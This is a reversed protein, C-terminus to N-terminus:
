EGKHTCTVIGYLKNEKTAREEAPMRTLYKKKEQYERNGYETGPLRENVETRVEIGEGIAYEIAEQMIQQVRNITAKHKEMDSSETVVYLADHLPLAIRIGEEICKTVAYRMCVGGSGQIPFNGTSLTNPNDGWMTWGDRLEIFGIRKYKSLNSKSWRWYVRFVKKHKDILRRAEKTVAALLLSKGREDGRDVLRQETESLGIQREIGDVTLLKQALKEHGMGFQLALVVVKYINRVGLYSKYEERKDDDEIQKYNKVYKVDIHPPIAGALQAFGAYPDGSQYAKMMNKDGSVKAAIAFEQSEWDLETIIDSSSCHLGRMWRPMVYPFVSGSPQNRGTKSGFVGFLIRLRNDRGVYDLMDRKGKGSLTRLSSLEKMNQYIDEILPYDRHKEIVEKKTSFLGTATKEWGKIGLNGIYDSVVRKDMVWEWEVPNGAKKKKRYVGPLKRNMDLCLENKIHWYNRRITKVADVDLEIGETQIIAMASQFRGRQLQEAKLQTIEKSGKFQRLLTQNMVSLMPILHKTDSACYELIAQREQATYNAKQQLILERMETKHRSDVDVGLYFAVCSAYGSGILKNSGTGWQTSVRLKGWEDFYRGYLQKTNENSLLRREAYTCIFSFDLPNLGLSIFSRAEASSLHAVFICGSDGLQRIGEALKEQKTKDKYCWINETGIVSGTNNKVSYLTLSACTVEHHREQDNVYEFDIACYLGDDLDAHM